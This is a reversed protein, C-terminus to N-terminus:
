ILHIKVEKSLETNEKLLQELTSTGAIYHLRYYSLIVSNKGDVLQCKWM